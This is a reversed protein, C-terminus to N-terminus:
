FKHVAELAENKAAMLSLWMYRNHDDVLLLFFTKGGLTAPSIPGCLDDHVLDHLGNARWKAQALFPKRKLKTTHVRHLTAPRAGRLAGRWCRTRGWSTSRRSTCTDTASM